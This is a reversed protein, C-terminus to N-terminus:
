DNIPDEFIYYIYKIPITQQCYPNTFELVLDKEDSYAQYLTPGLITLATSDFSLSRYRSVFNGDGDYYQTWALFMPKYGLNHPIRIIRGLTPDPTIVGSGQKNIKLLPYKSNFILNNDETYEANYGEKSIKIGYSSM